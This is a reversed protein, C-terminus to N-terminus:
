FNHLQLKKSFNGSRFKYDTQFRYIIILIVIVREVLGDRRKNVNKSM